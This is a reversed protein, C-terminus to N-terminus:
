VAELIVSAGQGGGVCLTALGHRVERRQMELLLTLILRTGTCGVPHGLAIAGGNVNLIDMPIEGLEKSAAFERLNALVQAAFAENMEVLGIDKMSLGAKKLALPTSRAPGLGMREPELGAFGWSKLRGLPKLGHRVVFDESAVVVAAGGDTIQSANGPTVTGYKRDFVPKLKALAEMTQNERVGNDFTLVRDYDPPVPVPVIELALKARAETARQHSRLAFHDQEERTIRGEKALIEATDGMGLDCVPDNLGEKLGIVPNLLDKWPMGSLAGLRQGATKAMGAKAFVGKVSDRYLFPIQTMNEVGGALVVDAEGIAVLRAAEVVSEIGSACNRSVSHAPREKPVGARLAIIRAINAADVPTAINGFISQDVASPEIGSRAMAEVAAARGLDVASVRTYDTGMRAFPTRAGGVIFATKSM